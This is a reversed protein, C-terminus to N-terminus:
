HPACMATCRLARMAVFFAPEAQLSELREFFDILAMVSLLMRRTPAGLRVKGQLFAAFYSCIAHISPQPATNTVHASGTERSIVTRGSANWLTTPEAPQPSMTPSQGLHHLTDTESRILHPRSRRERDICATAFGIPM